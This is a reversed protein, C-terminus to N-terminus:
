AALEEYLGAMTRTFRDAGFLRCARERGAEGMLRRRKEDELLLRTRRALAVKDAPPVLFGTEGDRVVEALAPLASAVVPRGAAQAELAVRQGGEALSPVWVVAAGALLRSLEAQEGLFHVQRGLGVAAVFQQLRLRDSGAGVLVLSLGPQLRGLVDVAWIADRFGKHPELPGICLLYPASPPPLAREGVSSSPLRGTKSTEVGPAVVRIKEESVGLQRCRIAEAPGAAVVRNTRGLLWRDLPLLAKACDGETHSVLLPLRRGGTLALARASPLGWAHVVDPAFEAKLQRLRLVPRPDLRHQRGLTQVRIGDQRLARGVPGERGLVCVTPEVEDAPLRRALLALQTTMGRYELDGTVFLVKRM